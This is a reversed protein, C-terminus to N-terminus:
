KYVYVRNKGKQKAEDLALRTQQIFEDKNNKINYEAVGASVTLRAMALPSDRREVFVASEIRDRLKEAVMAAQKLPTDPLVVAFEEGSYRCIIDVKRLNDKIINAMQLLVKDGTAYGYNENYKQFNDIDIIILSLHRRYRQLREIEESLHEQFYRHNFLGTTSDVISLSEIQEQLQIKEIQLAVLSNILMILKLDEDNFIDTNKRETINIVGLTIEQTKIPAIIFSKSQYRGLRAKSIEPFESDVNRVLLPRGDEAVKGAFMQGYRLKVQKLEERKESSAWVFLENNEKNLLMLSVRKAGFMSSVRDILLNGLEELNRTSEIAKALKLIQNFEEEKIM